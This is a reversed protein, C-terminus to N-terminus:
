HSQADNGVKSMAFTKHLDEIMDEKIKDIQQKKNQLINQCKPVWEGSSVVIHPQRVRDVLVEFCKCFQKLLVNVTLFKVYGNDLLMELKKDSIQSLIDRNECESIFIQYFNKTLYQEVKTFINALDWFIKVLYQFAGLSIQMNETLPLEEVRIGCVEYIKQNINTLSYNLNSTFLRGEFTQFLNPLLHYLRDQRFVNQQINFANSSSRNIRGELTAVQQQLQYYVIGIINFMLQNCDQSIQKLAQPVDFSTEGLTATFAEDVKAGKRCYIFIAQQFVEQAKQCNEYLEGVSNKLNHIDSLLHLNYEQKLESTFLNIGTEYKITQVFEPIDLIQILCDDVPLIRCFKQVEEIVEKSDESPFQKTLISPLCQKSKQKSIDLLQQYFQKNEM